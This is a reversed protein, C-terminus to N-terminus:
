GRGFVPCPRFRTFVSLRPSCFIFRERSLTGAGLEKIFPHSFIADWIPQAAKRLIHHFATAM